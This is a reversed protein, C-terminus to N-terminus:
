NDSVARNEITQALEIARLADDITVEPTEGREVINVFSELEKRLPEGQSVTPREVISEHRYRLGGREEIFEPVSQRHIEISQDIYDVEGFCDEATIELTRVKRQTLRSATFEGVIGNDFTLLATTRTNNRIGVSEVQNVDADLLSLVVDLDHIMLDLVASDTIERGPPPGLRNATIALVDLDEIVNSLTQIVPNFREIHGVQVPIGSAEALSKLRQGKELDNVLPKEVLVAVENNICETAIEYHFRTPVAVSVADAKTILEDRNVAETGHKSAITQAADEDVDSVGVLEVAPMESYVRAHHQGMTGVGIVGVRLSERSM